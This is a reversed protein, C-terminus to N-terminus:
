PLQLPQDPLSLFTSQVAQYRDAISFACPKLHAADAHGSKCPDEEDTEPVSNM